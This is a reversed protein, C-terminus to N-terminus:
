HSGYRITSSRQSTMPAKPRFRGFFLWGIPTPYPVVPAGHRVASSGFFQEKKRVLQYSAGDYATTEDDFEVRHLNGCMILCYSDSVKPKVKAPDVGQPLQGLKFEWDRFVKCQLTKIKGLNRGDTRLDACIMTSHSVFFAIMPLLRFM